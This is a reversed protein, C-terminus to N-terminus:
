PRLGFIIYTYADKKVDKYSIKTEGVVPSGSMLKKSEVIYVVYNMKESVEKAKKIAEQKNTTEFVNVGCQDLLKYITKWIKKTKTTKKEIEFEIKHVEKVVVKTKKPLKIYNAYQSNKDFYCRESKEFIENIFKNIQKETKVNEPLKVERLRTKNFCRGFQHGYAEKEEICKNKFAQNLDHTTLEFYFSTASM